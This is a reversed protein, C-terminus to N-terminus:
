SHGYLHHRQIYTLVAPPLLDAVAEGRGLRARIESASIALPAMPVIEPPPAGLACGPRAFVAIRCLRLIDQWRHWTASQAYQDAGMLLVLPTREGLETRLASLTDVSYGSAQPALEREDIAYRPEGALALRLMAVRHAAAAVPPRRYPPTGTPIWLLRQLDFAGLAARGMALHANHVPDFTGGLVGIPRV